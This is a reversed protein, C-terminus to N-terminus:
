EANSAVIVQPRYQVNVVTSLTLVASAAADVSYNSDHGKINWSTLM